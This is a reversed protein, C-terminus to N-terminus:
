KGEYKEILRHLASNSELLEKLYTRLSYLAGDKFGRKYSEDETAQSPANLRDSM